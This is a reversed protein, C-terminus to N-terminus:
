QGPIWLRGSSQAPGPGSGGESQETGAQPPGQGPSPAQEEAEEGGPSGGRRQAYAMQLQALADRLPRLDAGAVGRELVALLAQAADVASKVQDLDQEEPGAGTLGARRAGLNLLSVITQLLVDEVRLRKLEAELQARLEEESPASGAGGTESQNM